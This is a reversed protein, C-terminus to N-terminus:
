SRRERVSSATLNEPRRVDMRRERPFVDPDRNRAMHDVFVRRTTPFGGNSHILQRYVRGRSSLFLFVSVADLNMTIRPGSGIRDKKKRRSEEETGGEEDEEVEDKFGRDFASCKRLPSHM